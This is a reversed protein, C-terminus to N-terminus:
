KGTVLVPRSGAPAYPWNEQRSIPGSSSAPAAATTTASAIPTASAGAGTPRSRASRRGRRAVSGSSSGCRCERRRSRARGAGAGQRQLRAAERRDRASGSSTRLRVRGRVQLRLGKAREGPGANPQGSIRTRDHPEARSAHAPLLARRRDTRLTSERAAPHAGADLREIVRVPAGGLPTHLGAILRGRVRVRRGYGVTRSVGHRFAARLKTTAKLPNGLVMPSGDARTTSLTPNGAADYGLAAFEYDGGPEADSDWRARLEGDGPPAAPLRRYADGSGASRVGIWGRSPDAGSLPDAIRARILEPDNPDQSNPFAVRPPTRDIRVWAESPARNSVGGSTAGDDVNGAADRAYYAVRHEGEGIVSTAVTDGFATAPAGDDVRIATFPRPGDGNAEMGSASDSATAELGVARNTWGPPVGAIRTLPDVTDVHLVAQATPSTVGAGSVAAVHLYSTGEPPEAIALEDDGIGGRLTTEPVGCRDPAQCPYGSPNADVAAAYGRIGSPPLPEGPHGLRVRLPLDPRGIWAAVPGLSVGSPRTDDFRLPVSAAPGQAGSADEFWVEATYAGPAHAVELSGIGLEFWARREERLIAGTADSVRYHVAAPTPEGAPPASWTLSFRNEAHWGEGGAVSLGAPRPPAAAAPLALAGLGACLALLAAALLRRM